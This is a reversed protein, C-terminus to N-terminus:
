SKEQSPLEVPHAYSRNLWELWNTYHLAAYRKTRDLARNAERRTEFLTGSKGFCLIGKRFAPTNTNPWNTSLNYIGNSCYIIYMTKM